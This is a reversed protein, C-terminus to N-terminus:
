TEGRLSWCVGQGTGDGHFQILRQKQNRNLAILTHHLRRKSDIEPHPPLPDDIRPPWHEEEFAALIRKQNPAPLRFRKVISDGFRLEYRSRDWHPRPMLPHKAGNFVSQQCNAADLIKLLERGFATIVLCTNASIILSADRHFRREQGAPEVEIAFEAYNKALLWRLDSPTLGLTELDALPTAFQWPDRAVDAAYRSAQDLQALADRLRLQVGADAFLDGMAGFANKHGSKSGKSGM